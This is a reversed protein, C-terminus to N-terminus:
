RQDDATGRTGGPRAAFRALDAVATPDRLAMAQARAESSLQESLPSSAADDILGRTRVVPGCRQALASGLEGAHSLVEADPVCAWILGWQVAQAASIRDGTLAVGLARARGLVRPLIWTAGADPVIGLSAVQPVLFYSSEAAITIDALLALGLGGGVCPGNVAALVPVPATVIAECLPNLSGTMGAEVSAPLDGEEAALDILDYGACFARGAGTIVLARVDERDALCTIAARLEDMVAWTLANLRHPRRLTITAIGAQVATHVM